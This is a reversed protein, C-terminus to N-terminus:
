PAWAEGGTDWGVLCQDSIQVAVRELSIRDEEPAAGVALEAVRRGQWTVPVRTQQEPQAAGAQPGLALDDGEVFFIGAWGYRAALAAVVGRLVDDADGGAAVVREVEAYSDSSSM